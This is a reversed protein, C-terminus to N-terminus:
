HQYLLLLNGCTDELMVGTVAGMPVPEGRFAVGLAGLRVFDAQIDDVEFATIPIGHEYLERQFTVAFPYGTPELALEVEDPAAPSVVTLWRYEGMPFDNKTVFGLKETYFAHARAQDNVM